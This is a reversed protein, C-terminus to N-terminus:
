AETCEACLTSDKVVPLTGCDRCGFHEAMVCDCVCPTKGIFHSYWVLVGFGCLVLEGDVSHGTPCYCRGTRDQFRRVGFRWALSDRAASLWRSLSLLRLWSFRWTKGDWADFACPSLWRLHLHRGDLNGFTQDIM